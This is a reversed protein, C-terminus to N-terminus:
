DEVKSTTEGLVALSLSSANRLEFELLGQVTKMLDSTVSFQTKIAPRQKWDISALETIELLSFQIAGPESAKDPNSDRLPKVFCLVLSKEGEM